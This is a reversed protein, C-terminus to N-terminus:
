WFENPPNQANKRERRREEIRVGDLPIQGWLGM